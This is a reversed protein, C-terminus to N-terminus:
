VFTKIHDPFKKHKGFLLPLSFSFLILGKFTYLFPCALPVMTTGDDHPKSFDGRVGPKYLLSFKALLRSAFPICVPFFHWLFTICVCPGYPQPCSNQDKYFLYFLHQITFRWLAHDRIVFSLCSFRPLAFIRINRLIKQSNHM